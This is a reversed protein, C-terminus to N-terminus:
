LIAHAEGWLGRYAAAAPSAAAWAVVPARRVGMQEVATASPIVTAAFGTRGEALSAVFERHQTKRRDVMSLFALLRSPAELQSHFGVLTEYTRMALTSPIVPVLLLDAAQLINESVLSLGPPCDLVVLDYDEQLSTLSKRLRSDSHKQADLHLDMHRYSIDAPLLDLGEFDTGKIMPNLDPRGQVLQEGGGKVKPKVRFLFTSAGQPDLDWVLTRLGEAAALWAMNVAASTKGVGGKMSYAALVKM